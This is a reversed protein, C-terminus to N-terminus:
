DVVWLWAGAVWVWDGDVEVLEDGDVLLPPEVVLWAGILV